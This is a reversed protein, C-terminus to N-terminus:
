AAPTRSCLDPRAKSVKGAAGLSERMSALRWQRSTVLASRRAVSMARTRDGHEGEGRDLLVPGM